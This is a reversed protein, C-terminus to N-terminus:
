VYEDKKYHYTYIYIFLPLWVIRSNIIPNFILTIFDLFIFFLIFRFYRYKINRSIFYFTILFLLIFSILGFNVIYSLIGNHVSLSTDLNLISHYGPFLITSPISSFANRMMELRITNSTTTTSFDQLISNMVEYVVSFYGSFYLVLFMLILGILMLKTKKVILYVSLQVWVTKSLTLVFPIVGILEVLTKFRSNIFVTILFLMLILYHGMENPGFEGLAFRFPYDRFYLQGVLEFYKLLFLLSNIILAFLLSKLFFDYQKTKYVSELFLPLVTILFIYQSFFQLSGSTDSTFNILIIPPLFIVFLIKIFDFTFKSISIGKQLFFVSIIYLILLVDFYFLKDFYDFRFGTIFSFILLLLLSKLYISKIQFLDKKV